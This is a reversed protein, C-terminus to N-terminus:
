SPWVGIRENLLTAGPYHKAMHLKGGELRKAVQEANMGRKKILITRWSTESDGPMRFCIKTKCWRKEDERNLQSEMAEGLVAEDHGVHQGDCWDPSASEAFELFTQKAKDDTYDIWTCGGCGEDHAHGMKKGDLYFDAQWAIGDMGQMHKFKKLTIRDLQDTATDNM